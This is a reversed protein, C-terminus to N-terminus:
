VELSRLVTLVAKADGQSAVLKLRRLLERYHRLLQEAQRYKRELLRVRVPLVEDRVDYLAIYFGRSNSLKEKTSVM